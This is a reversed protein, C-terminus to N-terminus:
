SSVGFPRAWDSLAELQLSPASPDQDMCRELVARLEPSFAVGADNEHPVEFHQKEDILSGLDRSRFPVRGLLMELAVCGLAYLDSSYGIEEGLMQEPPMYFPTGIVAGTTTLGANVAGAAWQRALGFDTLKIDGHLTLLINSPKLDRHVIGQGHLYRLARSLQGILARVEAEPIPGREPIYESLAAGDCYEMVLFSTRYASFCRAVRTINEHSLSMLIDAERQFRAKAGPHFLLRHNMMKLAVVGEDAARVRAAGAAEGNAVEAAEERTEAQTEAIAKYVVAMGGRGLCRLVRYGEVRKGGLMDQRKGGLRDAMIETLVVALEAHRAAIEDFDAASLHLVQVPTTAVVDATRPEHTLLAMEGAVGAREMTDITVQVGRHDTVRVEASGRAIVILGDAPAGQRILYAGEPHEQLTMRAFLDDIVERTLLTFPPIEGLSRRLSASDDPPPM